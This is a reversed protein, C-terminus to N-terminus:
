FKNFKQNSPAAQEEQVNAGVEEEDEGELPPEEVVAEYFPGQYGDSDYGDENHSEDVCNLRRSPPTSPLGQEGTIILRAPSAPLIRPPTSAADTLGSIVTTSNNTVSNPRVPTTLPPLPRNETVSNLGNESM